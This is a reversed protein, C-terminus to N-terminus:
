IKVTLLFMPVLDGRTLHDTDKMRSILQAHALEISLSLLSSRESPPSFFYFKRTSETQRYVSHAFFSKTVNGTFVIALQVPSLHRAAQKLILFKVKKHSNKDVSISQCKIYNLKILPDNKSWDGILVWHSILVLINDHPVSFDM